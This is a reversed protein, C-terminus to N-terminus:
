ALLTDFSSGITDVTVTGNTPATWTWWVSHGGSDGAHDPEGPEKTAGVNSGTLTNTLGSIELRGSFNDNVPAAAAVAATLFLAALATRRTGIARALCDQSVKDDRVASSWKMCEDNGSSERFAAVRAQDSDPLIRRM